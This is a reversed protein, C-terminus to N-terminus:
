EARVRYGSAAGDSHRAASGRPILRPTHHSDHVCEDSQLEHTRFFESTLLPLTSRSHETNESLDAIDHPALQQGSRKHLRSRCKYCATVVGVSWFKLSNNGHAKRGCCAKDGGRDDSRNAYRSEPM